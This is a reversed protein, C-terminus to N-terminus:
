FAVWGCKDDQDRRSKKFRFHLLAECESFRHFNFVFQSMSIRNQSALHLDNEREERVRQGRITETAGTDTAASLHGQLRRLCVYIFVLPWRRARRATSGVTYDRQRSNVM